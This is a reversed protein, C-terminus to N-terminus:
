YTERYRKDKNDKTLEVRTVHTVAGIATLSASVVSVFSGLTSPVRGIVFETCSSGTKWTM